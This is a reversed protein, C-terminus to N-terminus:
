FLSFGKNVTLYSNFVMLFLKYRKLLFIVERFFQDSMRKVAIKGEDHQHTDYVVWRHDRGAVNLGFHTGM